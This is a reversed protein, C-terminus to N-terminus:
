HRIFRGVLVAKGVIHGNIAKIVEDRTATPPLDLKTDLAFLEFTYHHAPGQAPAGPGRFGVANGQNLGQIMGDAGQAVAPVNEPLGTSTGPINWAIWHIVDSTNRNLAVDPDHMHLVFTQTGMPVNSWTLVPSVANPVQQTYQDPIIGGDQFATTTLTLGPAAKGKAAGGPPPGGKGKDQTFAVSAALALALVTTLITRM